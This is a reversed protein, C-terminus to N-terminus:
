SVVNELPLRGALLEAIPRTMKFRDCVIKLIATIPAALLMGTIGWILGWFILSLLIVVPHLDLHDGMILPEIINGIM